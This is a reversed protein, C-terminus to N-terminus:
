PLNVLLKKSHELHEALIKVALETDRKMCADILQKHELNSQDNKDADTYFARIYRDVNAHLQELYQMLMKNGAYEYLTFHIKHNLNERINFNTENVAHEYYERALLVAEDTLNPMAQRLAGIELMTRIEMIESLETKDLTKVVAGRNPYITVLGQAELQKFAERVPIHSVHLTASIEDQKLQMGAPLQGRIIGYRLIQFVWDKSPTSTLNLEAALKQLEM